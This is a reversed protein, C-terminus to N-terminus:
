GLIIWVYDPKTRHQKVEVNFFWNMEKMKKTIAALRIEVMEKPCQVRTKTNKM